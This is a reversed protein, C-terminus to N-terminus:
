SDLLMEIHPIDDELYPQGQSKFGHKEYFGILYTQASIRIDLTGFLQQCYAISKKMLDDAIGKGRLSKILAVRGISAETYSVSPPLLRSVAVVEGNRNCGFLHHAKLDKDDVEQYPCNQEVVFIATRLQLIGHYEVTSLENFHKCHWSITSM